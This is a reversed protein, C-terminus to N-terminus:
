LYCISGALLFIAVKLEFGQATVAHISRPLLRELMSGTTEIAKRYFTQLYRVWPPVPRKSNEKRYPSLYFGAEQLADEMGYDNYAKDGTVWSDHPLDFDYLGLAKTDSYSGPTLFFEVPQGQATVLLHIKLGYFYRRKSAQFGRWVEGQSLRCQSIRCNDCAAVPFSDIVYVTETNLERWTEGLIQFLTMFLAGIRHLRRNFRSKGLMHPIDGQERLSRRATEFNGRFYLMAVIATTMVEADSMLCQQDEHHHLAQLMDDCLCFIAVIQDDM